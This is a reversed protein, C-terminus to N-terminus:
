RKGAAAPLPRDAPNCLRQASCHGPSLPRRSTGAAARELQSLYSFADKQAMKSYFHDNQWPLSPVFMIYLFRLFQHTKKCLRKVQPPM